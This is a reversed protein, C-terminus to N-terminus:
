RKTSEFIHKKVEPTSTCTSLYTSWSGDNLQWQMPTGAIHPHAKWFPDEEPLGLPPQMFVYVKLGYRAARKILARMNTVHLKANVGFEPFVSSKAMHHLEGHVWIANFGSVAIRALEEDTYVANATVTEDDIDHSGDRFDSFPSRWIRPFEM